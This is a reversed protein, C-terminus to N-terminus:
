IIEIIETNALENVSLPIKEKLGFGKNISLAKSPYQCNKRGCTENENLKFLAKDCHKNSNIYSRLVLKIDSTM